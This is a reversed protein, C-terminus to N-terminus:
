MLLADLIGDISEKADEKTNSSTDTVIGLKNAAPITDWEVSAHQHDTGHYSQLNAVTVLDVYDAPGDHERHLEEHLIPIAVLDHPFDWKELMSKGIIGHADNIINELLETNETLVSINEAHKLIPLAGIDHVLGALLAKDTALHTTTALTHCIAAVQNCHEWFTELRKKTADTSPKFTQQLMLSTVINRVMTNGMRTVAMDVSETKKNGRILPSNAIQILRASLAVDTKIVAAIRSSSANKGDITEHVKRAVDPLSPLVLTGNELEDFLNNIIHEEITGLFSM